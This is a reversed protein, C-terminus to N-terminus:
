DNILEAKKGGMLREVQERDTSDGCMLRHDGLAWMQGLKATPEEPAEPVEDEDTLGENEDDPMEFDFGLDDASIDFDTLLEALVPEDWEAFEGTKNDRINYDVFEEESDFQKVIVKAEKAGFKKLAQLTTHGCCVVENEFPHGPASVVMPKVQGHRRLSELVHEVAKSNKRPNRDYPVLESIPRNELM